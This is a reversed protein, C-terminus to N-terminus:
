IFRSLQSISLLGLRQNEQKYCLVMKGCDDEYFYYQVYQLTGEGREGLEPKKLITSIANDLASYQKQLLSNYQMRFLPTTIIKLSKGEGHPIGRFESRSGM